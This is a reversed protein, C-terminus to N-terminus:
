TVQQLSRVSDFLCVAPHGFQVMNASLIFVLDAVPKKEAGAPGPAEAKMDRAMTGALVLNNKCEAGTFSM